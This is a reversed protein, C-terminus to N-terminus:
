KTSNQQRLLSHRYGYFFYVVLGIVMWIVFRLWTIVKLNYILYLCFIIGLFPFVPSFPTKFPRPLDPHTIRLIIVGACVFVFAALTGINVLEAAHGIPVFGAISATIIGAIIIIRIPTHTKPHVHAIVPPMLGDRSMALTIRTLGYYMVLIVTTLGAIAGAAIFGAAIHHRIRLLADSVPSSVDLTSYPVILTLLASVVMYVITCVLLSAIIGIPVNRQPEITEEVATSLADFGIYAFFVLAAGQMVGNFGFPLFNDWNSVNIHNVSAAIFTAITILKIFVIVANFRASQKVGMSLLCALALIIGIALLNIDGGDFPNKTLAIPLHLHISDCLNRVYGSWGISVTSVAMAYELLLDWGIMWALLEGFGAYAYSYASGTGGVSAALEAYAFASFMSALGAIFYSVIIAPGAKTAAAVGTLVFIGAGIIAGIGMLTLDLATLTKHLQGDHHTHGIPKKRLLRSLM